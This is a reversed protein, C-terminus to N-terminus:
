YNNLFVNEIVSLTRKFKGEPKAEPRRGCTAWSSMHTILDFDERTFGQQTLLDQGVLEEWVCRHHCCMAMAVGRVKVGQGCGDKVGGELAKMLCRLSLDTAAGCLHKGVGVLGCGRIAEVGLLDLDVIDM